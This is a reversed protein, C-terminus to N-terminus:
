DKLSASSMKRKWDNYLDMYTNTEIVVVGGNTDGYKAPIAGTYVMMYKYAASPLQPVDPLKVGDLYCIMDGARAGRFVLQGDDNRKVESSVAVIMGKADFRSASNRMDLGTIKTEPVAGKKLHLADPDFVVTIEPLDSGQPEVWAVTGIDGIGDPTVEVYQNVSLTDGYVLFFVKYEGSPIASMRFRGNSDTVAMYQSAGNYTMVPIDPIGTGYAKDILTGIIDGFNNQAMAMGSCLIACFTIIRKM